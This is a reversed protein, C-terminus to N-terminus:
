RSVPKWVAHTNPGPKWGDHSTHALICEWEAGDHTVTDGPQYAVGSMWAAPAGDEGAPPTTTWDDGDAWVPTWGSNPTGPPWPNLGGHDNRYAQGEHTVIAGPPISDHAGSPQVWQDGDRRGIAQAYRTAIQEAQTEATAITQRRELETLVQIRLDALAEDDYDTLDIM